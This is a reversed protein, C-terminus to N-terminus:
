RGLFVFWLVVDYVTEIMNLYKTLTPIHKSFHPPLLLLFILRKYDQLFDSHTHTTTTTKDLGRVGGTVNEDLTKM